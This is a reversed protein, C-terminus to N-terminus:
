RSVKFQNQLENIVQHQVCCLTVTMTSTCMIHSNFCQVQEDFLCINSRIQCLTRKQTVRANVRLTYEHLYLCYSLHFFFLKLNLLIIVTKMSPTTWITTKTLSFYFNLLTGWPFQYATQTKNIILFKHWHFEWWLDFWKFPYLTIPGHYFLLEHQTVRGWLSFCFCYVFSFSSYKGVKSVVFLFALLDM